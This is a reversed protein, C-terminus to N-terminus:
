RWGFAEEEKFGTVVVQWKLISGELRKIFDESGLGRKFLACCYAEEFLNSGYMTDLVIYDM